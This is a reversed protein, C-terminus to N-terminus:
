LSLVKIFFHTFTLEMCHKWSFGVVEAQLHFFFCEM